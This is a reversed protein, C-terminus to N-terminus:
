QSVANIARTSSARSGFGVSNGGPAGSATGSACHASLLKNATATLQAMCGAPTAAIM